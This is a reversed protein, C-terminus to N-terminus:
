NEQSPSPSSSMTTDKEERAGADSLINIIKNYLRPDETNKKNAIKLPTDGDNRAHNVNAGAEVLKEVLEDEEKEVAIHLPTAGDDRALNVKAGARILYSANAPRRNAHEVAVHLATSGDRFEKNVDAGEDVLAKMTNHNNEKKALEGLVTIREENLADPDAGADILKKFMKQRWKITKESINWGDESNPDYWAGRIGFEKQEQNSLERTAANHLAQNLVSADNNEIKCKKSPNEWDGSVKSACYNDFTGKRCFYGDGCEGGGRQSKRKLNKRKYTKRNNRRKMTKRNNKRKMTKRNNRRKMTKRKLSKRRINKSSRRNRKKSKNM